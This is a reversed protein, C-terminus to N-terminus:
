LTEGPGTVYYEVKVIWPGGTSSATGTEAYIGYVRKDSTLKTALASGVAAGAAPNYGEGTAATKVDYDTMYENASTTSGIGITATTTADSAVGGIVYIGVIVASKPLSFLDVATTDTRAISGMKTLSGRAKPTLTNSM